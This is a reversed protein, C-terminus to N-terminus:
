YSKTSNERRGPSGSGSGNVRKDKSHESERAQCVSEAFLNLVVSILDSKVEHMIIERPNVLGQPDRRRHFSAYGIM